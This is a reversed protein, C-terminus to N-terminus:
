PWCDSNLMHPSNVTLLLFLQLMEKMFINVFLLFCYFYYFVIYLFIFLLNSVLQTMELSKWLGIHAGYMCVCVDSM